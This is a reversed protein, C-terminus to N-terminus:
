MSLVAVHLLTQSHLTSGPLPRDGLTGVVFVRQRLTDADRDVDGIDSPALLAQSIPSVAGQAPSPAPAGDVASSGAPPPMVPGTPRQHRESYDWHATVIISAFPTRRAIEDHIRRECTTSINSLCRTM